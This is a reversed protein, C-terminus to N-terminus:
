RKAYLSFILQDIYRKHSQTIHRPNNRLWSSVFRIVEKKSAQREKMLLVLAKLRVCNCYLAEKIVEKLQTNFMEKPSTVGLTLAYNIMDERSVAMAMNERKISVNSM